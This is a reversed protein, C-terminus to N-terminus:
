KATEVYLTHLVREVKIEDLYFVRQEREYQGIMQVTGHVGRMFNADLKVYVHTRGDTFMFPAGIPMNAFMVLRGGWDQPTALVAAPVKPKCKPVKPLPIRGVARKVTKKAPKHPAKAPTKKAM